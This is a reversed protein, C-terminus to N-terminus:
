GGAGVTAAAPTLLAGAPGTAGTTGASNLLQFSIQQFNLSVQDLPGEETDSNAHGGAVYDSVLVDELQIQLYDEGSAKPCTLIASKIHKGTLCASFLQPTAKDSLKTVSLDSLKPKSVAAGAAVGNAGAASPINSVGWSFSFLDIENEHGQSTSEGDIGDIKLYLNYAM